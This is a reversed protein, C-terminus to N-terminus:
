SKPTVLSEVEAQKEESTQDVFFLRKGKWAHWSEILSARVNELRARTDELNAADCELVVQATIGRELVVGFVGRFERAPENGKPQTNDIETVMILRDLDVAPGDPIQVVGEQYAEM